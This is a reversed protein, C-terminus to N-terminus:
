GGDPGLRWVEKVLRTVEAKLGAKDTTRGKTIRRGKRSAQEAYLEISGDEKHVSRIKM